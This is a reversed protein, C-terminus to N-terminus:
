HCIDRRKFVSPCMNFSFFCPYVNLSDHFSLKHIGTWMNGEPPYVVVSLFQMERYQCWFEAEEPQLYLCHENQQVVAKCEGMMLMSAVYTRSREHYMNVTKKEWNPIINVCWHSQSIHIRHLLKFANHSLVCEDIYLVYMWNLIQHFGASFGWTKIAM